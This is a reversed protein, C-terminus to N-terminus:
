ASTTALRDMLQVKDQEVEEELEQLSWSPYLYLHLIIMPQITTPHRDKHHTRVTNPRNKTHAAKDPEHHRSSSRSVLILFIRHVLYQTTVDVDYTVRELLSDGRQVSM